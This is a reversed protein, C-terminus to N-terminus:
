KSKGDNVEHFGLTIMIKGKLPSMVDLWCNATSQYSLDGLPLVLEPKKDEINNITKKTNKSCGFDGM